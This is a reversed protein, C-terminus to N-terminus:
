EGERITEFAAAAANYPPRPDSDKALAPKGRPKIIQSGLLTDFVKKGLMKELQSLSKPTWDYVVERPYGNAQLTELAADQDAFARISRGEVAKWGPIRKGALVASLAWDELAKLWSKVTGERTLIDGVEGADLLRAADPAAIEAPLACGFAELARFEYACGPCTAFVPCFHSKCWGGPVPDTDGRRAHEAAPAVIERAWRELEDPTTEWDSVSDLAPQVITMKVRRITDGFFPRYLSLAGLAYLKMQPNEVADVPVGSGNKYDTIWLVGDGIQICDATGTAPSGDPKNEGTIIGVPVPTELATVPKAAFSMAHETLVDLYRDTYGDMEKAYHPSSQLKKLFNAFKKPGIPEVFKKRAKLEAIEHALRGAEAYPSATDPADESLRVSAPCNIWRAASSPSLRAHYTPTPM